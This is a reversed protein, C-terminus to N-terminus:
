RRAGAGRLADELLAAVMTEFDIGAEAAAAAFGADPSLCPNANIELVWPEGREDVRFDVRAYGALAFVDWCELALDRARESLGTEIAFSRVTNRYEFSSTDWKAAYGVIRPKGAPFDRFRIEAIPLVRPADGAALLAVNLERGPVFAEAFWEGGLEKRRAQLAAEVAPGSVISSDDLGLSSHEHLSKVIWQDPARDAAGEGFLPPTPLGARRLARKALVKDSTLALATASCGTFPVELAALLAPVVQLLRGNGDLSEVLNFVVRPALERLRRQLAALDLGVPVTVPEFGLEGLATAIAAAEHLTDSADPRGDAAAADHLLAVTRSANM